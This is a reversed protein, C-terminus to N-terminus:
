YGKKVLIFAQLAAIGIAVIGSIVLIATRMGGFYFSARMAESAADNTFAVALNIMIGFFALIVGPISGIVIQKMPAPDRKALINILLSIIVCVVVMAACILCVPVTGLNAKEVSGAVFFGAVFIFVGSRGITGSTFAWVVILTIIISCIVTHENRFNLISAIVEPQTEFFSKAIVDFLMGIFLGPGLVVFLIIFLVIGVIAPM